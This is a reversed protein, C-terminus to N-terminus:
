NYYERVTNFFKYKDVSISVFLYKDYISLMFFKVAFVENYNAFCWPEKTRLQGSSM